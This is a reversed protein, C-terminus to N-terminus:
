MRMHVHTCSGVVEISAQLRTLSEHCQKQLRHLRRLTRYYVVQSLNYARSVTSTTTEAKSCEVVSFTLLLTLVKYKCTIRGYM